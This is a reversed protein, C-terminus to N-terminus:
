HSRASVASVYCLCDCIVAHRWLWGFVSRTLSSGPGTRHLLCHPLPNHFSYPIPNGSLIHDRHKWTCNAEPGPWNWGKSIGLSAFAGYSAPCIQYCNWMQSDSPWQANLAHSSPRWRLHCWWWYLLLGSWQQTLHSEPYLYHVIHLVQHSSRPRQCRDGQFPATCITMSRRCHEPWWCTSTKGPYNFM